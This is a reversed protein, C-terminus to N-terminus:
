TIASSAPMPTRSNLSHPSRAQIAARIQITLYFQLRTEEQQLSLKQRAMLSSTTTFCTAWMTPRSLGSRAHKRMEAALNTTISPTSAQRTFMSTPPILSVSPGHPCATKRPATGTKVPEQINNSFVTRSTPVSM